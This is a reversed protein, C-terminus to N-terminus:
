SLLKNSRSLINKRKRRLFKREIDILRPNNIIYEKPYANKKRSMVTRIIFADTLLDRQKKENKKSRKNQCKRCYSNKIIMNNGHKLVINRFMEIPFVEKCDKCTKHEGGSWRERKATRGSEYRREFTNKSDFYCVKVIKMFASLSYAQKSEIFKIYSNAVIDDVEIMNSPRRRLERGIIARIKNYDKDFTMVSFKM